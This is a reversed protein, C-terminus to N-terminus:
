LSSKEEKLSELELQLSEWLEMAGAIEEKVTGYREFVEAEISEEQNESPNSLIKDITSLEEELKGIQQETANIRSELKRIERDMEKRKQYLIKQDSDSQKDNSYTSKSFAANLDDLNRLKRSHLFDYVDGIYPKITQNRFEFVKDTLGQLFDRDHSVVILTGEYMLLANKLIDKSRMDLHNTPEDLVLLNVPEL